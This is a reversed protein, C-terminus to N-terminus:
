PAAPKRSHVDLLAAQLEAHIRGNTALLQGRTSRYPGGDLDSVKGGAEIVLLAGASVDWPKLKFEWYGDLMGCGVCACDLSAVGMRRIGQCRRIIAAFEPINNDLATRRDYPFGTALLAESLTSVTSVHLREGNIYAGRGRAAWLEWGLEPAHVVGVVPEGAVELGLSVAYIPLHHAYNTTGDIPDVYWVVEPAGDVETGEEARVTHEPFARRLEPVILAEARRDVETVLDVVGKHEVAVDRGHAARLLEAAALAIRRAEHLARDLDVASV